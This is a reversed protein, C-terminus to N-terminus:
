LSSLSNSNFSKVLSPPTAPFLRALPPFPARRDSEPEGFDASRGLEDRGSEVEGEGEDNKGVVVLVVISGESRRAFACLGRM